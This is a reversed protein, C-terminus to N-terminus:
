FKNWCVGLSLDSFWKGKGITPKQFTNAYSFNVMLNNWLEYQANLGMKTRRYQPNFGFKPQPEAFYQAEISAEGNKRLMFAFAELSLNAKPHYKASLLIRDANSGMWDGLSYNANSYNQAAIFNRYMFPNLRTYEANLTLYHMFLDTVSAGLQYGLQNRSKGSNFATSLRIEDIMWQGYLHTNPLQNRSSFGFFFQGNSGTLINDAFKQNDFAKFFTVPLMYALQLNESYMISEGLNIKLGKMPAIEVSHTAFFKPLYQQRVGGYVMNNLDYTARTDLVGSQLWAHMYNFKLWTSPQYNLAYFPYAPAKDSLVINGSRGYGMVQQDQGVTIMGKNLRYSLTANMQSYNLIKPNTTGKKVFGPLENDLRLSDYRGQENIDMFSLQFGIRKGAYGALQFGRGQITNIKGNRSQMTLNGMPNVILGFANEKYTILNQQVTPNTKLKKFSFFQPGSNGNKGFSTDTLSSGIHIITPNELVFGAIFFQLEKQEIASLDKQNQLETLKQFIIKRDIPKIFDNFEIKGKQAMRSLYDIVTSQHSQVQANLSTFNPMMTQLLLICFVIKVVKKPHM